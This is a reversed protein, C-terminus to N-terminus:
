LCFTATCSDFLFVVGVVARSVYGWYVFLAGYLRDKISVVEGVFLVASCLICTIGMFECLGVEDGIRVSPRLVFSETVFLIVPLM